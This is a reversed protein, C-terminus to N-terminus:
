YQAARPRVDLRNDISDVGRVAKVARVLPQIEDSPVAGTLMVRGDHADVHIDGPRSVLRGMESRVREVIKRDDVDRETLAAKAEHALGKTRNRVHRVGARATEDLEHGGHVLQDRLLARRRGGKDPDLFYMMGAGLAMGFVLTESRNMLDEM